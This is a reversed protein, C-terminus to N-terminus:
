FQSPTEPPQLEEPAPVGRSDLERLRIQQEPTLINKIRIMLTFQTRKITGEAEMVEELLTFAEAEDVRERKLVERLSEAADQVQWKLDLFKLEAQRIEQRIADKQDETLDIAKQNRMVLEPPFLNGRISRMADARLARPARPPRPSRPSRPTQALAAGTGLLWIAILLMGKKKM